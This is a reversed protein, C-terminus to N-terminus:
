NKLRNFIKETAGSIFRSSKKHESQIWLEFDTQNKVVAIKHTQDLCEPSNKHYPGVCVQVGALLAESVNHVKSKFSGGIFAWSANKYIKMLLGLGDVILVDEKIQSSQDWDSWRLTSYGLGKLQTDINKLSGLQPEHPVLVWLKNKTLSKKKFLAAIDEPWVSGFVGYEQDILKPTQTLVDNIHDYRPDSEVFSSPRNDDVDVVYSRTTFYSDFLNPIKKHRAVIHIPVNKKKLHYLLNMCFDTKALIFMQPKITKILSQLPSSFDFPLAFSFDVNPDSEIARKYSDSFYSVVIPQGASKFKKVLSRIHEYEGSSAHFWIANTPISEPLPTWRLRITKKIKSSLFPYFLFLLIFCLSYFLRYVYVM